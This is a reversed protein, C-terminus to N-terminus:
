GYQRKDTRRCDVSLFGAGFQRGHALFHIFAVVIEPRLLAVARQHEYEVRYGAKRRFHEFVFLLFLEVPAGDAVHFFGQGVGFEYGGREDLGVLIYLRERGLFLAFVMQFPHFLFHEVLVLGFQFSERATLCAHKYLQNVALGVLGGVAYDLSEEASEAGREPLCESPYEADVQFCVPFGVGILVVSHEFADAGADLLAGQLIM